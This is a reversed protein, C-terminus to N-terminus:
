APTREQSWGTPPDVVLSQLGPWTIRTFLDALEDPQVDPHDQWWVALSEFAGNLLHAIADLLARPATGGRARLDAELLDAVLLAQRQRVEAVERSVPTDAGGLLAGWAARHDAVFGFWALAGARLRGERDPAALVADHVRGALDEAIRDMCARFLQEKNGVLDYIVPKSVGARRALEDMSAASYGREAFLEEALALLQRLRVDRPVRGHRYAAVDGDGPHPTTTTPSM